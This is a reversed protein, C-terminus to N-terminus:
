EFHLIYYAFCAMRRMFGTETELWDYDTNEPHLILANQDNIRENTLLVLNTRNEAWYSIYFKQQMYFYKPTFHTRVTERMNPTRMYLCAPTHKKSRFSLVNPGRLFSRLIVKLGEFADISDNGDFCLYFPCKTNNLVHRLFLYIKDELQPNYHALDRAIFDQLKSIDSNNDEPRISVPNKYISFGTGKSHKLDFFMTYVKIIKQDPARLLSDLDYNKDGIKVSFSLRNYIVVKEEENAIYFKKTGDYIIVLLDQLQDRLDNMDSIKQPSDVWESFSLENTFRNGTFGAM